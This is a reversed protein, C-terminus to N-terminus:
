NFSRKFFNNITKGVKVIKQFIAPLLLTVGPASYYNIWDVVYLEIRSYKCSHTSVVKIYFWLSM